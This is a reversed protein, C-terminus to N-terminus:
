REYDKIGENQREIKITKFGEPQKFEYIKMYIFENGYKYYFWRGKRVINPNNKLVKEASKRDRCMYAIRKADPYNKKMQKVAEALCAASKGNIRGPVISMRRWLGVSDKDIKPMRSTCIRLKFDTM